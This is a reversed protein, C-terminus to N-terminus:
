RSIKLSNLYFKCSRQSLKGEQGKSWGTSWAEGGQRGLSQRCASFGSQYEVSQLGYGSRSVAFGREYCGCLASDRDLDFVSQDMDALSGSIDGAIVQTGPKGGFGSFAGNSLATFSIAAVVALLLIGGFIAEIRSM